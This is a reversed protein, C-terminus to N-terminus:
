VVWIKGIMFSISILNSYSIKDVFMQVTFIQKPPNLRYELFFQLNSAKLPSTEAYVFIVLTPPRSSPPQVLSPTLPYSSNSCRNTYHKVVTITERPFLFFAIISNVLILAVCALHLTFLSKRNMRCLRTIM